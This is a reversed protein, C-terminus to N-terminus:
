FYKACTNHNQQQVIAMIPEIKTKDEGRSPYRPLGELQERTRSLKGIPAAVGQSPRARQLNCCCDQGALEWDRVHDLAVLAPWGSARGM